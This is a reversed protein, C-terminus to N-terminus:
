RHRWPACVELQHPLSRVKSLFVSMSREPFGRVRSSANSTLNRPAQTDKSSRPSTGGSGALGTVGYHRPRKEHLTVELTLAVLKAVWIDAEMGPPLLGLGAGLARALSAGM